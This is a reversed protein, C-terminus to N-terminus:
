LTQALRAQCLLSYGLSDRLGLGLLVPGGCLSLRRLLLNWAGPYKRENGCVAAPM